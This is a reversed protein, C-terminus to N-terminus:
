CQVVGYISQLYRISHIRKKYSCRILLIYVYYASAPALAGLGDINLHLRINAVEPSNISVIVKRRCDFNPTLLISSKLKKNLRVISSTSYGWQIFVIIAHFLNIQLSFILAAPPDPRKVSNFLKFTVVPLISYKKYM